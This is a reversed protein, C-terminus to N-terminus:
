TCSNEINRFYKRGLFAEFFDRDGEEIETNLFGKNLDAVLGVNGIRFILLIDFILPLLCPACHLCDKLSPNNEIKSSADFVICTKKTESESKLVTRHSLYNVLSRKAATEM